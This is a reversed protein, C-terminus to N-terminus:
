ILFVAQNTASLISRCLRNMCCRGDFHYIGCGNSTFWLTGDKDAYGNSFGNEPVPIKNVESIKEVDGSSKENKVQGNCSIFTSVLILLPINRFTFKM